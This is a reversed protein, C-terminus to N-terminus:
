ERRRRRQTGLMGIGLLALAGPAPINSIRAFGGGEDYQEIFAWFTYTNGATLTLTESGATGPLAYTSIIGYGDQYVFSYKGYASILDWEFTIDKTASAVTFLQLTQVAAYSWTAADTLNLSAGMLTSGAYASMSLGPGAYSQPVTFAAANNSDVFYAYAAPGYAYGLVRNPFDLPALPTFDAMASSALTAAAALGACRLAGGFLSKKEKM